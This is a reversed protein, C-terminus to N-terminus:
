RTTTGNNFEKLENIAIKTIENLLDTIVVIPRTVKIDHNNLQKTLGAYNPTSLNINNESAIEKDTHIQINSTMANTDITIYMDYKNYTTIDPTPSYGLQLGAHISITIPIPPTTDKIPINYYLFQDLENSNFGLSHTIEIPKNAKIIVDSGCIKNQTVILQLGRLKYENNRLEYESFLSNGNFELHRLTKQKSWWDVVNIDLTDTLKTLVSRIIQEVDLTPKVMYTATETNNYRPATHDLSRVFIDTYGTVESDCILITVDNYSLIRSVINYICKFLEENQNYRTKM